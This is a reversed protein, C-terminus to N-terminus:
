RDNAHLTLLTTNVVNNEAIAVQYEIETFVPAEDNEDIIDVTLSTKNRLVNSGTLYIMLSYFNSKHWHRFM